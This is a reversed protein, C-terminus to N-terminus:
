VGEKPPQPLLSDGFTIAMDNRYEHTLEYLVSNAVLEACPNYGLIKTIQHMIMERVRQESRLVDETGIDRWGDVPPSLAAEIITNIDKAIELSSAYLCFGMEPVMGSRVRRVAENLDGAKHETHTTLAYVSTGDIQETSGHYFVREGQQSTFVYLKEPMADM